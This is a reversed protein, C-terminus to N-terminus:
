QQTQKSRVRIQLNIYLSKVYLTNSVIKKNKECLMTVYFVAKSTQYEM